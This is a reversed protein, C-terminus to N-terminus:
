GSVRARRRFFALLPPLYDDPTVVEVTDLRLERLMSTVADRRRAFWARHRERVASDGTNVVRREGSEPDLVALLGVKPLTANSPDTLRIPVLDHDGAMRRAAHELGPDNTPDVLFDSILFVVTRQRLVKAAYELGSSLRTGRGGPSAALLEFVLRMAHRRGTDPPVYREVRDTVLLIGVRDNNRAAALGLIAAIEAAVLANAKAGTGFEKSASLDVFLLVNLQREEV